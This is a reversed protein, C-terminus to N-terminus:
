VTHSFPNRSVQKEPLFREPDFREPEPFTDPNHNMGYLFMSINTGKPITVGDITWDDELMREILPVPSYYRIAEKVVIDLYEVLEEYVKKQVNPHHSLAYLSFCISMSATDHGEFMFTDVEERIDEDALPEGDITAELLVDLLAPKRKIGDDSTKLCKEGHKRFEEKRETQLIIVDQLISPKQAMWLFFRITFIELFGTVAEVYDENGRFQAKISTGFATECIIDLSALNVFKTIEISQGPTEEVERALVDTLIDFQKNFVSMFETSVLVGDGLWPRFLDYGDSKSLHINSNLLQELYEPKSVMLHLRPGLWLKYFTGYKNQLNVFSRLLGVTSGGVENANGIIPLPKPGPVNEFQFIKIIYVVVKCPSYSRYTYFCRTYDDIQLRIRAVRM